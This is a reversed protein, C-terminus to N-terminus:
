HRGHGLNSGCISGHYVLDFTGGGTSDFSARGELAITGTAGAYDGSGGTITLTAAETLESPSDAIPTFTVEGNATLLDGKKTVFVDTSTASLGDASQGTVYTTSAGDLTGGVIGLM